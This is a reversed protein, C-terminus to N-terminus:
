RSIDDVKFRGGDEGEGGEFRRQRGEEGRTAEIRESIWDVKSFRRRETSEQKWFHSKFPGRGVAM